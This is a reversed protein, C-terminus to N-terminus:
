YNSASTLFYPCDSSTSGIFAYKDMLSRIMIPYNSSDVATTNRAFRFLFNSGYQFVVEAFLPVDFGSTWSRLTRIDQSYGADSAGPFCTAKNGDRLWRCGTDVEHFVNVYDLAIPLSLAVLALPTQHADMMAVLDEPTSEQLSFSAFLVNGTVRCDQGRNGCMWNPNPYRGHGREVLDNRNPHTPQVRHMAELARSVDRGDLSPSCSHAPCLAPKSAMRTLSPGIEVINAAGYTDFVYQTSIRRFTDMAPHSSSAAVPDLQYRGSLMFLSEQQGNTLNIPVKISPLVSLQNMLGLLSASQATDLTDELKPGGELRSVDFASFTSLLMRGIAAGVQLPSENLWRARRASFNRTKFHGSKDVHMIGSDVTIKHSRWSAHLFQPSGM